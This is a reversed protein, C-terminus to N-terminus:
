NSLQWMRAWAELFHLFSCSNISEHNMHYNIYVYEEKKKKKKQFFFLNTTKFICSNWLKTKKMKNLESNNHLQYPSEYSASFKSNSHQMSM